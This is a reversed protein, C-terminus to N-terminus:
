PLEIQEVCRFLRSRLLRSHADNHDDVTGRYHECDLWFDYLYQGLTGHLFERLQSM